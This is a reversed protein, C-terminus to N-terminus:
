GAGPSSGTSSPLLRSKGIGPEGVLGVAQGHGAEVQRLFNRLIGLESDRDVFSASRPSPAERLGSRRHSVDLLRFAPSRSPRARSSLRVSRSWAPM